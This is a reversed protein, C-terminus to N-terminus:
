YGKIRYIQKSYSAGGDDPHDTFVSLETRTETIMKLKCSGHRKEVKQIHDILYGLETDNLDKLVSLLITNERDTDLYNEIIGELLSKM